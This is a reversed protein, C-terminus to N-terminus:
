RDIEDIDNQIEQRLMKRRLINLILIMAQYAKHMQMMAIDNMIVNTGQQRIDSLKLTPDFAIISLRFHVLKGAEWLSDCIERMRTQLTMYFAVDDSNIINEDTISGWTKDKARRIWARRLHIIMRVHDFNQEMHDILDREYDTYEGFVIEADFYSLLLHGDSLDGFLRREFKEKTDGSPM